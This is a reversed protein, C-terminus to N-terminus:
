PDSSTPGQDTVTDNVMVSILRDSKIDGYSSSRQVRLKVTWNSFRAAPSLPFCLDQYDLRLNLLLHKSYIGATHCHADYLRGDEGEHLMGMKEDHHKAERGSLRLWM